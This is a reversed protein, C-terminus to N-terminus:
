EPLLLRDKPVVVVVVVVVLWVSNEKQAGRRPLIAKEGFPQPRNSQNLHRLKTIIIHRLLATRSSTEERAETEVEEKM